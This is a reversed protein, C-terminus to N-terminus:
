QFLLIGSSLIKKINLNLKKLYLIDATYKTIFQIKLLKM